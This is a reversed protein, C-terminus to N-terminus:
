QPANKAIHWTQDIGGSAMGKAEQPVYTVKYKAFNLSVSESVTENGDVGGHSISSIIVQDMIIKLYEVPKDGGAKYVTLTAKDFHQGSCCYAMLTPTAKDVKKSIHIDQVSVKGTGGGTAVHMSGSQSMGWSFADIDIEGEHGSVVSESKVEPGEIKLFMNVAM